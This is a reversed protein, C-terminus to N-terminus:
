VALGSLRHGTRAVGMPASDNWGTDDTMLVVINPKGNTAQAHIMATGSALLILVAFAGLALKPFKARIGM